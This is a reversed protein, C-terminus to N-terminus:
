ILNLTGIYCGYTNAKKDDDLFNVSYNENSVYVHVKDVDCEFVINGASNQTITNYGKYYNLTSSPAEGVVVIKPNIAELWESPVKGSNRGHHPAFLIDAEDPTFDGKIEEMFESTLDGMWLLTAGQKLSYKIVCSINNPSNGKKAEVLASQYHKNSMIPWLFSIGAGDREDDSQNLWKRKCHCYVHFAKKADDRLNCYRNFDDTKDSKTAENAVCYFNLINIADDLEVLYRIHDDDPHTSIFRFIGKDSSESKIEKIIADKNEESMCCDIITFSDSDHKIYFMDGDGVSISKVISM